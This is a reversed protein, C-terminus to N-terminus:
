LINVFLFNVIPKKNGLLEFAPEAAADNFM